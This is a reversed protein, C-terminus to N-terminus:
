DYEYLLFEKDITKCIKSFNRVEDFIANDETCEFEASDIITRYSWLQRESNLVTVKLNNQISKLNNLFEQLIVNIVFSNQDICKREKLRNQCMIIIKNALVELQNLQENM